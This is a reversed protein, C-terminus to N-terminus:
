DELFWVAKPTSSIRGCLPFIGTVTPLTNKFEPIRKCFLCVRRDSSISVSQRAAMSPHAPSAVSDEKIDMIKRKVISVEWGARHNAPHSFDIKIKWM